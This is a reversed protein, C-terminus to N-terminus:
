NMLKRKNTMTTKKQIQINKMLRKIKNLKLNWIKKSKQFNNKSKLNELDM